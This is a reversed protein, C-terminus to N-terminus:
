VTFSEGCGCRASENPNIFEFGENLGKKQYDLQMGELYTLDKKNVVLTIGKDQYTQDNDTELTDVFELVYAMGSCGTTKVGIRLGITNERSAIANSAKEAAIDTLSIM